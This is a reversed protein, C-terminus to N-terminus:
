AFLTNEPLNLDEKTVQDLRKGTKTDWVQLFVDGRGCAVILHGGDAFQLRHLYTMAHQWQRLNRGTRVDTLTVKGRDVRALTNADPSLAVDSAHFRRTGLRAKAGAPLPDDYLGDPVYPAAAQASCALLLLALSALSRPM